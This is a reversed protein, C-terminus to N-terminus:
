KKMMRRPRPLHSLRVLGPHCMPHIRLYRRASMQLVKHRALPGIDWVPIENDSWFLLQRNSKACKKAYPRCLECDSQESEKPVMGSRVKNHMRLQAERAKGEEVEQELATIRTKM